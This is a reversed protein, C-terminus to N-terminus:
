WPHYGARNDRRCASIFTAPFLVMGKASREMRPVVTFMRQLVTGTYQAYHQSPQPCCSPSTM